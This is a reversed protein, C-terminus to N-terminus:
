LLGATWNSNDRVDFQLHNQTSINLRSQHKAGENTTLSTPGSVGRMHINCTCHEVTHIYKHIHKMLKDWYQVCFLLTGDLSRELLLSTNERLTSHAWSPPATARSQPPRECELINKVPFPKTQNCIQSMKWTTNQPRTLSFLVIYHSLVFDSVDPGRRRGPPITESEFFLRRTASWTSKWHLNM